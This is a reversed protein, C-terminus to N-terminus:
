LEGDGFAENGSNILAIANINTAIRKPTPIATEVEPKAIMALRTEESETAQEAEETRLAELRAARDRAEQEAQVRREQELQAAKAIRATEERQRAAEELEAQEALEAEKREKEQLLLAAVEARMKVEEEERAKDLLATDTEPRVMIVPETEEGETDPFAAGEIHIDSPHATEPQPVVPRPQPEDIFEVEEEEDPTEIETIATETETTIPEIATIPVHTVNSLISFFQESEVMGQNGLADYATARLLCNNLNRDSDAPIKWKYSGVAAQKSALETWTQGGDASWSLTVPNDALNADVAQWQIEVFEGGRLFRNGGKIDTLYITPGENDFALTLGPQTGASPIMTVNGAKDAARLYFGVKADTETTFVIPSAAGQYQGYKKWTAGEDTTTWLEVWDIGSGGPDDAATYTLEVRNASAVQPGTLKATPATADSLVMGPAKILAVNGARDRVKLRFSYTPYRSGVPKWIMRGDEPLKDKLLYWRQGGDGSVHLEVSNKLPHNDQTQWAIAIGEEGIRDSKLPSLFEGQPPTTDVIIVREPYTGPEPPLEQNGARDTSVISFGYIGDGPVTIEFPSQRDPDAGYNKWTRGLDTTGFLEVKQIASGLGYDDRIAYAIKFSNYRMILADEPPTRNSGGEGAQLSSAGMCILILLAVTTAAKRTM